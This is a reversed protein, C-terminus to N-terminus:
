ARPGSMARSPPSPGPITSPMLSSSLATGSRADSLSKSSRWRSRSSRGTPPLATSTGGSIGSSRHSSYGNRSPFSPIRRVAESRARDRSLGSGGSPPRRNSGPGRRPRRHRSLRSPPAAAGANREQSDGGRRARLPLRARAQRRQARQYKRRDVVLQHPRPHRGLLGRHPPLPRCCSLLLQADPGIGGSLLRPSLGTALRMRQQWRTTRCM